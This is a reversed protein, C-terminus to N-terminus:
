QQKRVGLANLTDILSNQCDLLKLYQATQSYLFESFEPLEPIKKIHSLCKLLKVQRHLKCYCFAGLTGRTYKQLERPEQVM